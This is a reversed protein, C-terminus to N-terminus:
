CNEQKKKKAEEKEHVARQYEEIVQTIRLGEPVILRKRFRRLTGNELYGTNRNSMEMIQPAYLLKGEEKSSKDSDYILLGDKYREVDFGNQVLHMRLNDSEFDNRSDDNDADIGYGRGILQDISSKWAERLRSLKTGSVVTLIPVEVHSDIGHSEIREFEPILMGEINYVFPGVQRRKVERRTPWCVEPMGYTENARELNKILGRTTLARTELDVIYYAGKCIKITGLRFKPFDMRKLHRFLWSEIAYDRFIEKM